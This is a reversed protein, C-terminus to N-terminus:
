RIHMCLKWWLKNNVLYSLTKETSCWSLFRFDLLRSPPVGSLSMVGAPDVIAVWFSIIDPAGTPVTNNPSSMSESAILTSSSLFTLFYIKITEDDDDDDDENLM